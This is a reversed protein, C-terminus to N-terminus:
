SSFLPNSMLSMTQGPCLWMGGWTFIQVLPDEM